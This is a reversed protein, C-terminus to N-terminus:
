LIIMDKESKSDPCFDSKIVEDMSFWASRADRAVKSDNFNGSFSFVKIYKISGHVTIRTNRSRVPIVDIYVCMGYM